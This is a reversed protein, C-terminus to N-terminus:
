DLSITAIDNYTTVSPIANYELIDEIWGSLEDSDLTCIQDNVWECVDGFNESDLEWVCAELLQLDDGTLAGLFLGALINSNKM